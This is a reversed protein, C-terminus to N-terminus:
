IKPPGLEYSGLLFCFSVARSTMDTPGVVGSYRLHDSTGMVKSRPSWGSKIGFGPRYGRTTQGITFSTLSLRTSTSPPMERVRGKRFVKSWIPNDLDRICALEAGEWPITGPTAAVGM